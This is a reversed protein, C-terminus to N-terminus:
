LFEPIENEGETRNQASRTSINMEKENGERATSVIEFEGIGYLFTTEEGGRKSVVAMQEVIIKCSAKRIIGDEVDVRGSNGRKGEPSFIV